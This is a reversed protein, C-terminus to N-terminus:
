YLTYPAGLSNGINTDIVVSLDHGIQKRAPLVYKQFLSDIYTYIFQVQSHEKSEGPTKPDFENKVCYPQWQVMRVTLPKDVYKGEPDTCSEDLTVCIYATTWPETTHVSRVRCSDRTKYNKFIIIFRKSWLALNEFFKANRPNM